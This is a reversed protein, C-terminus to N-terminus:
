CTGRQWFSKLPNDLELAASWRVELTNCIGDWGDNAGIPSVHHVRAFDGIVDFFLVGPRCEM